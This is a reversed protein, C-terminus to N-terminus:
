GAIWTFDIVASRGQDANGASTPLFLEVVYQVTQGPNLTTLVNNGFWSTVSPLPPTPAGGSPDYVDMQLDQWLHNNNAGSAKFSLTYPSGSTNQITFTESASDGPVANAISLTCGSLNSDVSLGPTGCSGAACTGGSCVNGGGGGGGGGGGTTTTTTTTTTSTTTTAATTTTTTGGGGGGHSGGGSPTTTTTTPTTTTGGGGGGRGGFGQNAPPPISGPTPPPPPPIGPTNGNDPAPTPGSPPAGTFTFSNITGGGATAFLPIQSPHTGPSLVNHGAGRLTFHGVTAPIFGGLDGIKEYRLFATDLTAAMIVGQDLPALSATTGGAGVLPGDYNLRIPYTVPNPRAITPGAHALAPAALAGAAAALVALRRM